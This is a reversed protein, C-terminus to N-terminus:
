RSSHSSGSGQGRKISLQTKASAPKTRSSFTPGKPVRKKKIIPYTYRTWKNQAQPDARALLRKPRQVSFGIQALIKRVHGPHYEREFEDQIVKAVMPSTWVGGTFGYAVPGSDMIDGLIIKHDESLGSPRGSRHGELLGEYGYDEYKKLWESVSSRPSKLIPAIEGSTKGDHNLLVAHIRNSVRYAGEKEAKKKDRILKDLTRHHLRLSRAQM